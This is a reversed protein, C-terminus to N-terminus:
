LNVNDVEKPKILFRIGFEITGYKHESDICKIKLLQNGLPLDESEEKSIEIPIVKDSLDEFVHKVQAIQLIAKWTSLDIGSEEDTEIEIKHNTGAFDLDDGRRLEIIEKSLIM